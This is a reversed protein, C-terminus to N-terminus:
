YLATEGGTPPKPRRGQGDILAVVDALLNHKAGDILRQRPVPCWRMKRGTRSTEFLFHSKRHM